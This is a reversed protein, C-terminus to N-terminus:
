KPENTTRGEAYSSELKNTLHHRPLSLAGNGLKRLSIINQSTRRRPICMVTGKTDVFASLLIPWSAM